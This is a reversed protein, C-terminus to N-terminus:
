CNLVLEDTAYHHRTRGGRLLHHLQAHHTVLTVKIAEGGTGGSVQEAQEHEEESVQGLREHRIGYPGRGLDHDCFHASRLTTM